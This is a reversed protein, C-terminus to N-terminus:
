QEPKNRINVKPLLTNIPGKGEKKHVRLLGVLEEAFCEGVRAVASGALESGQEEIEGFVDFSAFIGVAKWYIRPRLECDPLPAPRYGGFNDPFFIM